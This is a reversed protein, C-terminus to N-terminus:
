PLREVLWKGLAELASMPITHEGTFPVWTVKMGADELMGRLREAVHFPLLPDRTGHSQFVPLKARKPAREAWAARSILTGSMQVLGLPAEELRLAVDCSLMAGQSFGGVVTHGIPVKTKASLEDVLATFLRRAKPLGDPVEEVYANWDRGGVLKELDLEWWARGQPMGHAALSLPAEPVVWRVRRGLEPAIHSLESGLAVLDDGPAGFGHCFVVNVDAGTEPDLVVGDLGGLTTRM